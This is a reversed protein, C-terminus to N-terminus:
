LCHKSNPYTKFLHCHFRGSSTCRPTDCSWTGDAQCEREESGILTFGAGCSYHVVDEFKYSTGTVTGDPIQGPYGCSIGLHRFSISLYM